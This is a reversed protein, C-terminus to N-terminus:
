KRAQQFEAKKALVDLKSIYRQLSYQDQHGIRNMPHGRLMPDPECLQAIMALLEEAFELPLLPKLEALVAGFAAKVYPLVESYSGGWRGPRHERALHNQLMSNIHARAFVFAILNGFHYLDAAFRRCKPDTSIANYLLEVPAYGTDGPIDFDEHPGAFMQTWARGLDGVKAGGNNPIIMINSPKVDQHAIKAEHLQQLAVGTNHVVRLMFATDFLDHTDLHGRVDGAALEFIIYEVKGYPASPHPIISGSTIAHIVHSMHFDRCAECICKEFGYMKATFELEAPSSHVNMQEHYDMAKLYCQRGDDHHVIYGVSFNAGTGGKKTIMKGVTWGDPLKEGELQERPRM